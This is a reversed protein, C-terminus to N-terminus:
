PGSISAGCFLHTKLNSKFVAYSYTSKLHHPISNWLSPGAHQLGRFANAINIRPQSLLNLSVSRLQRSPTHHYLLSSLFQPNANHLSRHVIAAM